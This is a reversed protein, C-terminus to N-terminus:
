ISDNLTNKRVEVLMAYHHNNQTIPENRLFDVVNEPAESFLRSNRFDSFSFNFLLMYKM